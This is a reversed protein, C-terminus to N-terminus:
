GLTVLRVFWMPSADWISCVFNRSFPGLRESSSTQANQANTLIANMNLLRGRNRACNKERGCPHKVYFKVKMPGNIESFVMLKIKINLNVKDLDLDLFPM